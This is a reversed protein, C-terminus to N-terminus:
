TNGQKLENYLQGALEAVEKATKGVAWDPVGTAQTFRFGTDQAAAQPSVVETSPIVGPESTVSAQQQTSNSNLPENDPM